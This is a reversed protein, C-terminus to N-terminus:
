ATASVEKLGAVTLYFVLYEGNVEDTWVLGNGILGSLVGHSDKPFDGLVMAFEACDENYDRRADVPRAFLDLVEAPTITRTSYRSEGLDHGFTEILDELSKLIAPAKGTFGFEEKVTKSAKQRGMQIGSIELHLASRLALLRVFHTPISYDHSM